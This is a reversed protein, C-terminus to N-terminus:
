LLTDQTKLVCLNGAQLAVIGGPLNVKILCKTFQEAFESLLSAPRKDKLGRGSHPEGFLSLSLGTPIPTVGGLASKKGPEPRMTNVVRSWDMHQSFLNARKNSGWCPIKAADLYRRCLSM